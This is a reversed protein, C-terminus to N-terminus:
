RGLPQGSRAAEVVQLIAESTVHADHQKLLLSSHDAGDVVRQISNTSLARLETQFEQWLREQAQLADLRAPAAVAAVASAYGHDTATLVVLPLAGLPGTARVQADAAPSASFEARNITAYATSNAFAKLEASQQAPLDSNRPFMNFLRLLGFRALIPGITNLRAFSRFEAQGEPTRTWQDPHSADVLVIGAVQDPYMATYMRVYKGGYSHGVLVYPGPVAAAQLLAQLEAAFHEADRPQPRPDSWGSGARDYACVRTANAVEPQVWGWLSTTGALASELIVTPAGAAATGRCDIHMTYGGVDVLRGSPPYARRDRATAVTQYIAGSVALAIMAVLLGLAVRRIWVGVRNRRSTAHPVTTVAPATITQM